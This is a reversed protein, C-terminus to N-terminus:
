EAPNTGAENQVEPTPEPPTYDRLLEVHKLANEVATRRAWDTGKSVSTRMLIVDDGEARGPAERFHLWYQDGKAIQVEVEAYNKGAAQWLKEADGLREAAPEDRFTQIMMSKVAADLPSAINLPIETADGTADDHRYYTSRPGAQQQPQSPAAEQNLTIRLARGQADKVRIEKTYSDSPYYLIRRERYSFPDQTFKDFLHGGVLLVLGAHDAYTSSVFRNAGGSKNGAGLEVAKGNPSSYFRVIHEPRNLGLDRLREPTSTYYGALKPRRWERFMNAISPGGRRRVYQQASSEAAAAPTEVFYQDELLGPVRIVRLTPANKMEVKTSTATAPEANTAEDGTDDPAVGPVYEIVQWDEKWLISEQEDGEGVPGWLIFLLVLAGAAVGIYPYYRQM